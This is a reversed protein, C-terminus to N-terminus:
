SVMNRVRALFYQLSEGRVSVDVYSNQPNLSSVSHVRNGYVVYRTYDGGLSYVLDEGVSQDYWIGLFFVCVDGSRILPNDHEGIVQSVLISKPNITQPNKLYSYVQVEFVRIPLVGTKLGKPTDVNQIVRGYVIVDSGKSLSPLDAPAVWEIQTSYYNNEDFREAYSALLPSSDVDPSANLTAIITIAILAAASILYLHRSM